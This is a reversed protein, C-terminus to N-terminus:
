KGPTKSTKWTSPTAAFLSTASDAIFRNHDKTHKILARWARSQKLLNSNGVIWLSSKARTIAVNMRREDAWFADLVDEEDNGHSKRKKKRRSGHSTRVCSYIIIEKERGQFGDVTNVEIGLPRDFESELKGIAGRVEYIQQKYPAIVGIRKKWEIHPFKKLLRRLLQVVTEVESMNRLSTSGSVQSQAGQVDLFLLPKFARDRHYDQATWNRMNDDQVLRGGYFHASPFEAIDPHMRYQQTLLLVPSKNEVLRQQLSRDYGMSVLKKSIVTAPLQRHDGVLVVRHPRFKFPILTSAEVAQAAEDIILADFDQAFECMAVSGAGSLTCFVIQANKIIAQRAQKVTPFTSRHKTVLSELLVEEVERAYKRLKKRNKKSESAERAAAFSSLQQSSEPRGVHVIRPRYSEGKEGNYLGESLVRVVLEDVAANSPACVLVRISTEAVTKSVASTRASQLSAGVRIRATGKAKQLTSIGAGDLLASLLGLITKTKGTGPPGQIIVRSDEGLCGLIAQMQSENYHKQLYKLLRPSLISSSAASKKCAETKSSPVLQGCLLAQKLDNPLFSISKIAQFERASTTTNHVQQLTWRWNPARQNSLCLETLVSFNEVADDRDRKQARILVCIQGSDGSGGSGGKGGASSKGGVAVVSDCLVVGFVCMEYNKWRPSRVLVLDGSMFDSSSKKGLASADFTLIYDNSNSTNGTFGSESFIAGFSLGLSSTSPGQVGCPSVSSLPLQRTPGSGGGKRDTTNSVSAVLEEMIGELQVDCYDEISSHQAPLKGGAYQQLHIRKQESARVNRPSMDLLFDYFDNLAPWLLSSKVSPAKKTATLSSPTKRKKTTTKVPLSPSSMSTPAASSKHLSGGNKVPSGSASSSQKQNARRPDGGAAKLAAELVNGNSAEDSDSAEEEESESESDSESESSSSAIVERRKVRNVVVAEDDDDEDDESNSPATTRELIESNAPTPPKLSDDLEDVVSLNAVTPISATPASAAGKGSLMTNGDLEADGAEDEFAEPDDERRVKYENYNGSDITSTRPAAGSEETVAEDDEGDEEMENGEGDVDSMDADSIDGDDSGTPDTPFHEATDENVYFRKRQPSPPEDVHGAPEAVVPETSSRSDECSPTGLTSSPTTSAHQHSSVATPLESSGQTPLLKTPLVKKDEINDDHERPEGEEYNCASVDAENRQESHTGVSASSHKDRPRGQHQDDGLSSVTHKRKQDSGCRALDLYRATPAATSTESPTARPSGALDTKVGPSNSYEPFCNQQRHVATEKQTPSTAAAQLLENSRRLLENERKLRGMEELVDPAVVIAPVAQETQTLQQSQTTIPVETPQAHTQLEVPPSKVPVPSAVPAQASVAALTNNATVTESSPPQQPPALKREVEELAMAFMLDEEMDDVIFENHGPSSPPETTASVPAANVPIQSTHLASSTGAHTTLGQTAPAPQAMNSVVSPKVSAQMQEVSALTMPATTVGVPVPIAAIPASVSVAVAPAATATPKAERHLTQIRSEVREKQEREVQLKVEALTMKSAARTTRKVPAKKEGATKKAAATAKKTTAAAKKVPTTKKAAPAANANAKAKARARTLKVDETIDEVQAPGAAAVTTDALRKKFERMGVEVSVFESKDRRPKKRLTAGAVAKRKKAAADM